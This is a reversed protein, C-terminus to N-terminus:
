ATLAAEAEGKSADPWFHRQVALFMVIIPVTLVTAGAMLLPWNTKDMQQMLQLAVPLTYLEESKLYLLPSFFDSWYFIFALVTVTITAPRAQPMAVHHWLGLYNAGDLRAAEFQETAIRRFSWFYLLVFLPSSGMIAPAALSWVTDILGLKAFLIYRTLWLATVPVLMLLVCVLVMRERFRRESLAVAFGAFSATLLTVPVAIAAVLLSNGLFRALPIMDFIRAYNEWAVPDPVWVISRSPPLGTRRLSFSVVWALPLVFLLAVALRVLHYAITSWIRSLAAFAHAARDGDQRRGAGAIPRRGGNIDTRGDHSAPRHRAREALYLLLLRRRESTAQRSIDSM